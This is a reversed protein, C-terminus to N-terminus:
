GSGDHNESHHKIVNSWRIDRHMWNAKHLETLAQLIDQLVCFLEALMSPMKDDGCPKFILRNHIEDV